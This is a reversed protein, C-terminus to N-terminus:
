LIERVPSVESISEILLIEIGPRETKVISQDTLRASVAGVHSKSESQAPGCVVCRRAAAPSVGM